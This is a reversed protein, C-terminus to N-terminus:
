GRASPAAVPVPPPGAASTAPRAAPPEPPAAHRPWPCPPTPATAATCPSRRLPAPAARMASPRLRGGRVLRLRPRGRPVPAHVRMRRSLRLAHRVGVIGESLDQDRQDSRHGGVPFHIPWGDLLVHIVDDGVTGIADDDGAR